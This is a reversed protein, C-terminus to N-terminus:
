FALLVTADNSSTGEVISVVELIEMANLIPGLNSGNAEMFAFNTLEPLQISDFGPEYVFYAGFDNELDVAQGAYKTDNRLIFTFKRVDTSNLDQIEALFTKAWAIGPFDPIALRYTLTGYTGVVATQMVKSPPREQAGTNTVNITTNIRITGSAENTLGNGRKAIDSEWIRDVPDDPYRIFDTSSAGFNIRQGYKLYATSDYSKAYMSAQLQRLELTSIFPVGVSGKIICVSVSSRWQTAIIIEEFYLQTPSDIEITAWSTADLSIQFDPFTNSNDFDGYLFTARILYRSSTTVPLTYCYKPQSGNFFRVTQYQRSNVGSTNGSFGGSIFDLDPIWKIGITDVFDGTGGCDLSVFGDQGSVRWLLPLMWLVIWKGTAILWSEENIM